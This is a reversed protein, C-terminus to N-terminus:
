ASLCITSSTVPRTVKKKREELQKKARWYLEHARQRRVGIIEGIQEFTKEEDDRLKVIQLYRESIM